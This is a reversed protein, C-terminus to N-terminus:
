VPNGDVRRWESQPDGANVLCREHVTKTHWPAQPTGHPQSAPRRHYRARRTPGGTSTVAAASLVVGPVIPPIRLSTLPSRTASRATWATWAPVDWRKEATVLTVPPKLM